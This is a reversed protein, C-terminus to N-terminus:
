HRYLRMFNRLEEKIIGINVSSVLNVCGIKKTLVFLIKGDKAKKDRYLRELISGTKVNKLPKILNFSKLAQIQANYAEETCYGMRRAIGAALAMGIAVAEGHKYGKYGSASEIAHGLTHGYNLVARQGKTEKEDKGVIAAKCAACQAVIFAIVSRQRQGIKERNALLYNFFKKDMIIGYKIVEALGNRFERDDLTKLTDTDSLVFVPQHFTGALNKGAKLDAGTKGGIASDVQAVLTTAVQAVKIGRMYISAAFAAIDGTVGGGLAVIACRRDLGAKACAEIIATVTAMNKHAEGDAMIFKELIFFKKLSAALKAGYLGYVKKNAVIMVKKGQVEKKLLEGARSLINSGTYVYYPARKINVKIKKM